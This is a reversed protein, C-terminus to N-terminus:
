PLAECSLSLDLALALTQTLTSESDNPRCSRRSMCCRTAPLDHPDLMDHCVEPLATGDRHHTGQRRRGSVRGCVRHVKRTGAGLVNADDTAEHVWTLHVPLASMGLQPLLLSFMFPRCNTQICGATRVTASRGSSHKLANLDAKFVQRWCRLARASPSGSPM